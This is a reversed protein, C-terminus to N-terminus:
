GRTWPHERVADENVDAGWGAGTPIVFQGERLESSRTLLSSKWPVDDGEIEMIALNGAAACFHASMLDALPGYFNHPAVNVEFTEALAAIRVSEAFGNWLVDVVATDVAHADFYPKYGRRGYISELSAIPLRCGSRFAGLAAPDHLDTELWRLRSPELLQALRRLSEPRLSFNVDLMLGRDPGLASRMAACQEAIVHLTQEDLARGFSLGQPVFGPNLLVPGDKEFLIPNTKVAKFGRAVAEEGLREFDSTSALRAKGLVKEFLEAHRARFSGCHSWYVDVAERMPGGFLAHVPMSRAKAAIDICANEIAAIAQHSLGGATFQTVAHLEASLRAFSTPDRGIVQRGLERIVEPLAPSWSGEAFEAWGTLGEDTTVKLFSFPRWGGDARLTQLDVIRMLALIVATVTEPL